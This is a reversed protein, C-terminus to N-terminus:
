LVPWDSEVCRKCLIVAHDSANQIRLRFDFSGTGAVAGRVPADSIERNACYHQGLLTVTLKLPDNKGAQRQQGYRPADWSLHLASLVIVARVFLTRSTQIM